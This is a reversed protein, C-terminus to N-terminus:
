KCVVAVPKIIPTLPPPPVDVASCVFELLLNEGADLVAAEGAPGVSCDGAQGAAYVEVVVPVGVCLTQRDNFFM